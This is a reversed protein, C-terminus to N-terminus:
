KRAHRLPPSPLPLPGAAACCRPPLEPLAVRALACGSCRAGTQAAPHGAITCSEPFGGPHIYVEALMVVLFDLSTCGIVQQVALEVLRGRWILRLVATDATTLCTWAQSTRQELQRAKLLDKAPARAGGTLQRGCWVLDQM